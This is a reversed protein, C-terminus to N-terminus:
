KFFKEDLLHLLFEREISDLTSTEIMFKLRSYDQPSKHSRNVIDAFSKYEPSFTPLPFLDM